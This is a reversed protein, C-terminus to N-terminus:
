PNLGARRMQELTVLGNSVMCEALAATIASQPVYKGSRISNAWFAAAEPVSGGRANIQRDEPYDEWRRARLWNSSYAVYMTKNGSNESAYRAAAKTIRKPDVGSNVGDEFLERSAARDSPRPHAQWFKGFECDLSTSQSGCTERVPERVLNPPLNQRYNVRPNAPLESASKGTNAADSQASKVTEKRQSVPKQAANSGDEFAFVYRDSRRRTGTGGSKIRRILGLGELICLHDRVSRESMECEDSLLKQGPFCGYVPNHHDALQILLLKTAPRLGRQANAWIM